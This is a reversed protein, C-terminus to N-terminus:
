MLIGLHEERLSNCEKLFVMSLSNSYVKETCTFHFAGVPCSRLSTSELPLLMFLASHRVSMTQAMPLMASTIESILVARIQCSSITTVQCSCLSTSGSPELSAFHDWKARTYSLAHERRPHTCRLTRKLCSCM